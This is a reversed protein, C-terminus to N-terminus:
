SIIALTAALTLLIIVSCMISMAAMALFITKNQIGRWQLKEKLTLNNLQDEYPLEDDLEITPTNILTLHERDKKDM